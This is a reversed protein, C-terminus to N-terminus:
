SRIFSRRIVKGGRTVIIISYRGPPVNLIVEVSGNLTSVQWTFIQRRGNEDYVDVSSITQGSPLMVYLVQGTSPNPFIVPEEATLLVRKPLGSIDFCKKDLDFALPLRSPPYFSFSPHNFCLLQESKANTGPGMTLRWYSLLGRDSGIGDWWNDSIGNQDVRNIRKIPEGNELRYDESDIDTVIYTGPFLTPSSFTDDPRLAFDYLLYEQGLVFDSHQFQSTNIDRVFWVKGESVRIRGILELESKNSDIDIITGAQSSVYSYSGLRQMYVQMYVNGSMSVSSGISYKVAGYNDSYPHSGASLFGLEYMETWSTGSVFISDPSLRIAWCRTSLLAALIALSFRMLDWVVFPM